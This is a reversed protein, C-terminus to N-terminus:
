PVIHPHDIAAAVRSEYTFRRRFTDNRAMEPALLKLAVMRDLRLDRACYVVAMGGRGIEREVRYGAIQAGILGSARGSYLGTGSSESGM